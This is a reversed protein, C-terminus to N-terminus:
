FRDKDVTQTRTFKKPSKASINLNKKENGAKKSKVRKVDGYKKNKSKKSEFIKSYLDNSKGKIVEKM